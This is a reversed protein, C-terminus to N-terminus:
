SFLEISIVTAGLGKIVPEFFAAILVSALKTMGYAPCGIARLPWLFISWLLGTLARAVIAM